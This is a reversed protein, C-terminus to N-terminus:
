GEAPRGWSTVTFMFRGSRRGNYQLRLLGDDGGGTACIWGRRAVAALTTRAADLVVSDLTLKNRLRVCDPYSPVGAKPWGQIGNTATLTAVGHAGTRIVLCRTCASEAVVPQVDLAYLGGERLAVHGQWVIQRSM